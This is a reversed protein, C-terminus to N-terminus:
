SMPEPDSGTLIMSTITEARAGVQRAWLSQLFAASCAPWDDCMAAALAARFENLTSIGLNYVLEIFARSRADNDQVHPWWLQAEATRIASQLRNGLLWNAEDITIGASLNLGYGITTHGTTDTYPMLRLGEHYKISATLKDPDVPCNPDDLGYM